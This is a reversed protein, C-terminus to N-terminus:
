FLSYIFIFILFIIYLMWIIYYINYLIYIYQVAESHHTCLLPLAACCSTWHGVPRKYVHWLPTCSNTGVWSGHYVVLQPIACPYLSWINGAPFSANEAFGTEELGTQDQADTNGIGRWCRTWCAHRWAGFCRASKVRISLWSSPSVWLWALVRFSSGVLTGWNGEPITARALHQWFWLKWCIVRLLPEHDQHGFPKGARLPKGHVPWGLDVLFWFHAQAKPRILHGLSSTSYQRRSWFVKACAARFM